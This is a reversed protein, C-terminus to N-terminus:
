LISNTLSENDNNEDLSIYKKNKRKNYKKRALVLIPSIPFCIINIMIGGPM